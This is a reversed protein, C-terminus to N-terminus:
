LICLYNCLHFVQTHALSLGAYLSYLAYAFNLEYLCTNSAPRYLSQIFCILTLFMCKHALPLSLLLNYVAHLSNIIIWYYTIEYAVSFSFPLMWSTNYIYLIEYTTSIFPMWSHTICLFPFYGNNYM